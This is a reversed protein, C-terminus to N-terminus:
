GVYAYSGTLVYRQLVGQVKRFGKAVLRAEYVPVNGDMYIKKEFVWKCEVARADDPLDVLKWVQNDGMSKLESKM